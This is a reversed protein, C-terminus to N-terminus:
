NVKGNMQMLPKDVSNDAHMLFFILILPYLILSFNIVVFIVWLIIHELIPCPDRAIPQRRLQCPRCVTLILPAGVMYISLYLELQKFVQKFLHIKIM